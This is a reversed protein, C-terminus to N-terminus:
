SAQGEIAVRAREFAEDDLEGDAHRQQLQELLAERPGTSIGSEDDSRTPDLRRLWLFGLVDAIAFLVLLGAILPENARWAFGAGALLGIGFLVGMVVILQHATVGPQAESDDM